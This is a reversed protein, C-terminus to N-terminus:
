QTKIRARSSMVDRDFNIKGDSAYWHNEYGGHQEKRVRSFHKEKLKYCTLLKKNERKKKIFMSLLIYTLCEYLMLKFMVFFSVLSVLM